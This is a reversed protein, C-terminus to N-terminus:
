QSELFNIRETVSSSLLHAGVASNSFLLIEMDTKKQIHNISLLSPIHGHLFKQKKFSYYMLILLLILQKHVHMNPSPSRQIVLTIRHICPKPGRFPGTCLKPRFNLRYYGLLYNERQLWFPGLEGKSFQYVERGTNNCASSTHVHPKIVLM